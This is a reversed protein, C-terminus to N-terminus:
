GIRTTAPAGVPAGVPTGVPGPREQRRSEARVWLEKWGDPALRYCELPGADDPHRLGVYAVEILGVALLRDVANLLMYDGLLRRSGTKAEIWLFIDPCFKEGESLAELVRAELEDALIGVERERPARETGAYPWRRLRRFAGASEVIGGGGKRGPDM